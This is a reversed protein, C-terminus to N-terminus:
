HRCMTIAVTAVAVILWIPWTRAVFGRFDAGLAGLDARVAAKRGGLRAREHVIAAREEDDMADHGVLWGDHHELEHDVTEDIEARWDYPGDEDWMARFTRYYLAVEGSGVPAAPDGGPPVYSGLLPEGGDDCAPVRDDVVLRVTSERGRAIRRWASQAAADFADLDPFVQTNSQGPAGSPELERDYPADVDNRAGCAPCAAAAGLRPPYHAALFLDGVAAWAEDSCRTLAEAIRRADTVPGLKVVGMARVVRDSLVLRRRRLARHLPAAEAVTVDRLTIERATVRDGVAIPPVEHPVSLELTADLEPDDLEADIFPGLALAACPRVALTEGCNRCPIEVREEAIWGLRTAVARLTHFDRLPLSGVDLPAGDVRLVVDGSALLAGLESFLPADKARTRSAVASKAEVAVVLGGPLHVRKPPRAAAM